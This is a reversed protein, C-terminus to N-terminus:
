RVILDVIKQNRFDAFGQFTIRFFPFFPGPITQLTLYPDALPSGLEKAIQKIKTMAEAVEEASVLPVCGVVPFALEALIGKDAIVLGGQLEILRNIAQAMDQDNTGVVILPSGIDYTSSCAIAGSKIGIGQIFGTVLRGNNRDIVSVKLIDQTLDPEISGNIVPLSGQYEQTILETILKMVRVTVKEGQAAVIFQQPQYSSLPISKLLSEPYVDKRPDALLNGNKAVIRGNSIVYECKIETLSPLIVIDAYKGPAIGGIVDAMGFREATNITAMQIATVPEFGLNIAKQVIYDIHGLSLLDGAWLADTGLCLRRCDIGEKIIESVAELDRRISGERIIIYLGLRLKELAESASISEHCSSVGSAVYAVLKNGKAGSAHGDVVKKRTLALAMNDITWRDERIVDPWLTEGLGVVDDRALLRDIDETALSPPVPKLFSPSHAIDSPALGFLKIPQGKMNELLAIVAEYGFPGLMDLEMFITTTGRPIAHRLFQDVTMYFHTHGDIFGPAVIKGSADIVETDSGITHEIEKGLFAIKDGKIAISYGQLVEGGYVNVLNGNKIVLDAQEKGLAVRMLTKRQEM